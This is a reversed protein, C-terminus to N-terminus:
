PCGGDEEEVEEEADDTEYAPVDGGREGGVFAFDATEALAKFV